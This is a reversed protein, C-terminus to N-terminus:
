ELVGFKIIWAEFVVNQSWCQWMRWLFVNIELMFYLLLLQFSSKIQEPDTNKFLFTPCYISFLSQKNVHDTEHELSFLFTADVCIYLIHLSKSILLIRESILHLSSILFFWINRQSQLHKAAWSLCGWTLCLVLSFWQFDYKFRKVGIHLVKRHVFCVERWGLETKFCNRYSFTNASHACSIEWKSSCLEARVREKNLSYVGSPNKLTRLLRGTYVQLFHYHFCSM